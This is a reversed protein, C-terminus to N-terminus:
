SDSYRVGFSCGLMRRVLVQLCKRSMPDETSQADFGAPRKQSEESRWYETILYNLLCKEPTHEGRYDDDFNVSHM